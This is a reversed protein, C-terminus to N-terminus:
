SAHHNGGPAMLLQLNHEANEFLSLVEYQLLDGILIHDHNQMAHSLELIITNLGTINQVYENWVEHNTIITELNSIRDIKIVTELMWQLGEFLDALDTWSKSQPSQYFEESLSKLRTKANLIYDDTSIVIDNVMRKDDKVKVVVEQISEMNDAFYKKFNDNVQIGDIEFFDFEQNYDHLKDDILSFIGDINEIRNETEFSEQSFVIKM